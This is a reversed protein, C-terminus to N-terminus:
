APAAPPVARRPAERGQETRRRTDREHTVYSCAWQASVLFRNRFSILFFIHAVAWTLWGAFGALHVQGFEAIADGRGIAALQGYDTYHFAGGGPQGRLRRRIRRAVFSGQQKAVPALEPLKKEGDGTVLAADGIVYVGPLGAVQLDPGVTVKGRSGAPVGLWEAAPTAEVGATWIM